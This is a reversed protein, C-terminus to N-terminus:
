TRPEWRFFRVGFFLAGIGWAGMVLFDNVHLGSGSLGLFSGIMADAFHRIPFVKGVVDIWGSPNELPIFINSIFLLPLITANVVAPAADANPIVATMAVGLASFVAAGVVLTLLFSPLTNTPLTAGYFAAGFAACIVVLVIAMAVFIAVGQKINKAYHGFTFALGFPICLCLLIEFANTFGDPNEFPHAANANFFGGGNTGLDKIAEMSAVPGQAITQTAGELTHAVTYASFNQIAGQSVLVLTAVVAIPLLIYLTARTIDVYFNGITRGSRRVLGRVLAIALAIGTAASLFQHFALALMQSLYSMSQEGTYNQWNTNTTFSIATNLSLDAPVGPLHNPNFLSQFPLRDQLRLLVYTFLASIVTVLLMALLYGVWSQERQEDVGMVRFCGREVPRLVPTLITREGRFVKFMYEGLFWAAVFVALFTVVFGVIQSGM